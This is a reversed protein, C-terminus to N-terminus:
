KEAVVLMEFDTTTLDNERSFAGTKRRINRNKVKGYINGKVRMHKQYQVFM